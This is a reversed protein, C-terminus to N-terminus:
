IEVSQTIYIINPLLFLTHCLHGYQYQKSLPDGQFSSITKTNCSVVTPATQSIQQFMNCTGHIVKRIGYGKGLAIYITLLRINSYFDNYRKLDEMQSQFLITTECLTRCM